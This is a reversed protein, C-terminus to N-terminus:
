LVRRYFDALKTIVARPIEHGGSFEHFEGSWGAQTLMEFLRQANVYSLLADSVGHSQFFPIPGADEAMPQWNKQDLLTGSLLVLGPPKKDATLALETSLMAGQSFGGWIVKSYQSQLSKILGRTLKAARDMEPPRLQSMDRHTGERMSKELAQVDISFWARGTWQPGLPVEIIGNPFVWNINKALGLEMSFPYLDQADAGYGHFLVVCPAEPQGEVVLCDIDGIRKFAPKM